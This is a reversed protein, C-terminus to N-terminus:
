GRRRRGGAISALALLAMAGPAPIAGIRLTDLEYINGLGQTGFESLGNTGYNPSGAESQTYKDNWLYNRPDGPGGKLAEVDFYQLNLIQQQTLGLATYDLVIEVATNDNPDVRAFLV